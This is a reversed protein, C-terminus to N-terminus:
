LSIFRDFEEHNDQGTVELRWTHDEAQIILIYKRDEGDETLSLSDLPSGALIDLDHQIDETKVERERVEKYPKMDADLLTYGEEFLRMNTVSLIRLHFDNTRKPQIDRNLSEDASIGVQDLIIELSDFSRNVGQLYAQDFLYHELENETRFKGM